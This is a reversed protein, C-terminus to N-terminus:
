SQGGYRAAREAPCPWYSVQSFMVEQGATFMSVTDIVLSVPGWPSFHESEGSINVSEMM